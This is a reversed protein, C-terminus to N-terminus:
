MSENRIFTNKCMGKTVLCGFGKSRASISVIYMFAIAMTTILAGFLAELKRLGYSELFLFTFTDAATIM